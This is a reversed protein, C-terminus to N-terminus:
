RWEYKKLRMSEKSAIEINRSLIKRNTRWIVSDWMDLWKFVKTKHEEEAIIEQREFDRSERVSDICDSCAVAWRYEYMDWHCISKWCKPCNTPWWCRCNKWFEFCCPCERNKM